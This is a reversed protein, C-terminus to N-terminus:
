SDADAPTGALSLSLWEWCFKEVYTASIAGFGRAPIRPPQPRDPDYESAFNGGVSNRFIFWGGTAESPDGQFGVVCVSHGPTAAGHDEDPVAADPSPDPIRGNRQAFLGGWNTVPSGPSEAFQPVAVAVPRGLALQDYVKRAVGAPRPTSPDPYDFYQDDAVTTRWRLAEAKAEADPEIGAITRVTDFYPSEDWTCIGFRALVERAHSLKTAGSAWGPPSDGPDVAMRMHWYLFQPSMRILSGSRRYTLLEIGAAVTFAICTQRTEGQEEPYWQRILDPGALDLDELGSLRQAEETPAAIRELFQRRALESLCQVTPAAAGFARLPGGLRTLLEGHRAPSLRDLLAELVLRRHSAEAQPVDAAPRALSRSLVDHAEDISDAGARELLQREGDTLGFREALRTVFESHAM